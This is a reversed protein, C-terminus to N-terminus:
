ISLELELHGTNKLENLPCITQYYPYFWFKKPEIIDLTEKDIDLTEESICFAESLCGIMDASFPEFSGNIYYKELLDRWIALDNERALNEKIKKRTENNAQLLLNGNEMIKIKM